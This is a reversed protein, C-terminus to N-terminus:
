LEIQGNAFKIEIHEDEIDIGRHCEDWDEGLVCYELAYGRNKQGKVTLMYERAKEFEEAPILEPEKGCLQDIHFSKLMKASANLRVHKKNKVNKKKKGLIDVKYAKNAPSLNEFHLNCMELLEEKTVLVTAVDKKSNYYYGILYMEIGLKKAYKACYMKVAFNRNNMM